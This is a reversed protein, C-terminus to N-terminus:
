EARAARTLLVDWERAISTTDGPGTAPARRLRDGPASMKSVLALLAEVLDEMRPFASWQGRGDQTLVAPQAWTVTDGLVERAAGFDTAITAAGAGWATLVSPEIAAGDHPFLHIDIRNSAMVLDAEAELDVRDALGTRNILDRVEELSDMEERDSPALTTAILLRADSIRDGVDGKSSGCRACREVPSFKLTEPHHDFLILKGCDACRRWFGEVLIRFAQLACVARRDPVSGELLHGIRLPQVGAKRDQTRASEGHPSSSGSPKAHTNAASSIMHIPKTLPPRFQACGHEVARKGFHTEVVAEDCLALLKVAEPLLPVRDARVHLMLSVRSRLRLRSLQWVLPGLDAPSGSLLVPLRRQRRPSDSVLRSVTELCTGHSRTESAVAEHWGIDWREGLHSWIPTMPDSHGCAVPGEGSPTVVLLRLRPDDGDSRPSDRSPVPSALKQAFGMGNAEFFSHYQPHQKVLLDFVKSVQRTNREEEPMAQAKLHHARSASHRWNLDDFVIWGGPRLLRDVLFFALGDSSWTHEGDVYCFDFSPRPDQELLKMLRWTYSTPEHYAKVQDSLGTRALLDVLNPRRHRASALDITVVGEGNTREMMAAFYCTSAGHAFGLELISKVGNEGIFRALYNARDLSMYPVDGMKDRLQRNMGSASSPDAHPARHEPM